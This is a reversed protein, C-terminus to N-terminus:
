NVVRHIGDRLYRQGFNIVLGLKLGTMRLYTLCQCEFIPNHESVAKCEIIVTGEVIIDIRLTTELKKGKYELPCAVQRQVSLGASKLEEVLAEEYASELLGPGGMVRHVEIAAGIIKKSLEEFVM